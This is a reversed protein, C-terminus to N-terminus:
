SCNLYVKSIAVIKSSLFVSIVKQNKGSISNLQDATTAEKCPPRRINEDDQAETREKEKVGKTVGGAGGCVGGGGAGREDEVDLGFSTTFNSM